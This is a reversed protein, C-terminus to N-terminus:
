SARGDAISFGGDQNCSLVQHNPLYLMFMADDGEVDAEPELVIYPSERGGFRIVHPVSEIMAIPAGVFHWLLRDVEEIQSDWGAVSDGVHIRWRALYIWLHVEGRERFGRKTSVSRRGGFEFTLFTGHGRSAAWCPADAVTRLVINADAITLQRDM